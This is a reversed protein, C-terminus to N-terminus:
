PAQRRKGAKPFPTIKRREELIKQAAEPWTGGIEPLYNAFLDLVTTGEETPMDFNQPLHKRILGRIMELEVQTMDLVCYQLATIDNSLLELNSM